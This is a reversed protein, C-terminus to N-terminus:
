IDKTKGNILLEVENKSLINLHAPHGECTGYYGIFKGFTEKIKCDSILYVEGEIDQVQFCLSEGEKGQNIITVKM